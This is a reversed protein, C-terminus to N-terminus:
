KRVNSKQMDSLSSISGIISWKWAKSAPQPTECCQLASIWKKPHLSQQTVMTVSLPLCHSASQNKAQSSVNCLLKLTSDPNKQSRSVDKKPLGRWELCHLGYIDVDNHATWINGAQHAYKLLWLTMLTLCLISILDKHVWIRKCDAAANQKIKEIEAKDWDHEELRNLM